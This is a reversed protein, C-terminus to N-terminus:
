RGGRRSLRASAVGPGGALRLAEEASYASVDELFNGAEDYLNYKVAGLPRSGVGRLREDGVSGVPMAGVEAIEADLQRESKRPAVSRPMKPEGEGAPAWGKALLKEWRGGRWRLERKGASPPPVGVREVFEARESGTGTSVAGTSRHTSPNRARWEGGGARTVVDGAGPREGYGTGRVEIVRWWLRQRFPESDETTVYLVYLRGDRSALTGDM